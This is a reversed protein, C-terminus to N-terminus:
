PGLPNSPSSSGQRPAPQLGQIQPTQLYPNTTTANAGIQQANYAQQQLAQQIQQQYMQEQLNRYNTILAILADYAPKTEYAQELGAQRSLLGAKLRQTNGRLAAQYSAPLGSVAADTASDMNGIVNSLDDLVKQHSSQLYPGLISLAKAQMLQPDIVNSNPDLRSAAGKAGNAASSVASGLAKEIIGVDDSM